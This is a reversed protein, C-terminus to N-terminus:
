ELRVIYYAWIDFPQLNWVREKGELTGLPALLNKILRSATQYEFLSIYKSSLRMEEVLMIVSIAFVVYRCCLCVVRSLVRPSPYLLVVMLDYPYLFIHLFGSPPQLLFLYWFCLVFFGSSFISPPQLDFILLWFLQAGYVGSSFVSPPQFCLCIGYMCVGSSHARPSWTVVCLWLSFM